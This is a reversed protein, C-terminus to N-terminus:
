LLLFCGLRNIGNSSATSYFYYASHVIAQAQYNSHLLYPIAYRMAYVLLCLLVAQCLLSIANCIETSGGIAPELLISRNEQSIRNGIVPRFAHRSFDRTKLLRYTRGAHLPRRLCAVPLQSKRPRRLCALTSLGRM